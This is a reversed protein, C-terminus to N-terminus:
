VTRNAGAAFVLVYVRLAGAALLVDACADATSGTTYIDDVLLIKKNKIITDWGRSVTFANEINARREVAGLGKMPMTERSRLLINKRFPIKMYRSLHYALIAAQNYGRRKEKRKHMPVPLILDVDLEEPQIRDFMIEALKEGYYAKEKFKFRLLMNKEAGGYETCAFGKEFSHSASSCDTCIDWRYGEKLIKGCCRCTRENAWHLNTLCDDCLSYPRSDDILNDCCICYINSPYLLELMSEWLLRCLAGPSAASSDTIRKIM